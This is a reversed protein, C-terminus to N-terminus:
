QAKNTHMMARWAINHQHKDIGGQQTKNTSMVVAKSCKIPAQLVGKHKTSTQRPGM